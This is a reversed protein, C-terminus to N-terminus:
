QSLVPGGPYFVADQTPTLVLIPELRMVVTHSTALVKTGLLFFEVGGDVARHPTSAELGGAMKPPHNVMRGMSGVTIIEM